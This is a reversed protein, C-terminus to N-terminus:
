PAQWFPCATMCKPVFQQKSHLFNHSQWFSQIFSRTENKNVPKQPATYTINLSITENYIKTISSFALLM